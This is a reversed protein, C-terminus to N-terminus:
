ANFLFFLLMGKKLPRECMHRYIARYYKYCSPHYGMVGDIETPLVIVNFKSNKIHQERIAKADQCTKLTAEVFPVIEEDADFQGIHLCCKSDPPRREALRQNPLKFCKFSDNVLHAEM